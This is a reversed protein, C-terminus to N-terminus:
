LILDHSLFRGRLRAKQSSKSQNERISWVWALQIWMDFTLLFGHFGEWLFLNICIYVYIRLYRYM